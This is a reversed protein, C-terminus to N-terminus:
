KTQNVPNHAPRMFFAFGNKEYLFVITPYDKMFKDKKTIKMSFYAPKDITGTLLWEKSHANPNTHRKIKGYFLHAYSKYGKTDLYADKHSVSKFFEIAARQSYAEVKPVILTMALLLFVAISGTLMYLPNTGPKKRSVLLYAILGGSLILMSIFENGKWGGDANLCEIAFPDAIWNNSILWAKYHDIFTILLVALAIFGGIVAILIRIAKKWKLSIHETHFVTWAALFTLPYYCLSSYHAIKTKVITFLILVVWFLILM